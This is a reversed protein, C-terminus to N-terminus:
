VTRRSPSVAFVLFGGLAVALVAGARVLGTGQTAEWDLIARVREVGILPTMLGAFLVAAGVVRLLRPWRSRSAVIILVIGIAVRAAAIAYLGGPTVVYQRIAFVRDPAFVGAMGILLIFVAVLLAVYRM